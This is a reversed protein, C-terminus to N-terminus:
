YGADDLERLLADEVDASPLDVLPDAPDEPPRPGAAFPAVVPATGDVALLEAVYATLEDLTPFEFPLTSPLPRDLLSSLRNSLEVAM